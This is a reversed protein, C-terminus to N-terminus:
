ALDILKPNLTLWQRLIYLHFTVSSYECYKVKQSKIIEARLILGMSILYDLHYQFLILLLPIFYFFIVNHKTPRFSQLLWLDLSNATLSDGLLRLLQVWATKGVHNGSCSGFLSLLLLYALHVLSFNRPRLWIYLVIPMEPISLPCFYGGQSLLVLNTIRCFIALESSNQINIATSNYPGQGLGNPMSRSRRLPNKWGSCWLGVETRSRSQQKRSM